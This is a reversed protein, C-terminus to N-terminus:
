FEKIDNVAFSKPSDANDTESVIMTGIIPGDGITIIHDVSTKVCTGSTATVKYSYTAGVTSGLTGTNFNAGNGTASGSWAYTILGPNQSVASAELYVSKNPCTTPSGTIEPITLDQIDVKVPMLESICTASGAVNSPVTFAASIYYTGTQAVGNPSSM